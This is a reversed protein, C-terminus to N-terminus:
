ARSKGIKASMSGLVPFLFCSVLFMCPDFCSVLVSHRLGGSLEDVDKWYFDIKWCLFLFCSYLSTIRQCSLKLPFLMWWYSFMFCSYLSVLFYCLGM